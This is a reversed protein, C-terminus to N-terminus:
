KSKGKKHFPMLLKEKIKKLQTFDAINKLFIWKEDSEPKPSAQNPDYIM